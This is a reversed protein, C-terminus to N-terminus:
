IFFEFFIGYMGFWLTCYITIAPWGYQKIKQWTSKKTTVSDNIKSAQIDETDYYLKELKKGRVQTDNAVPESCFEYMHHLYLHKNQGSHSEYHNHHMATIVFPSLFQKNMTSSSRTSITQLLSRQRLWARLSM